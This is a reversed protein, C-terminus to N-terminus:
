NTIIFNPVKKFEKSKVFKYGQFSGQIFYLIPYFNLKIISYIVHIGFSWILKITFALATFFCKSFSNTKLNYCIRWWLIFQIKARKFLKKTSSKYKDSSSGADLHVIGSNYHVLLVYNNIYLKYFFLLDDGYAFEFDDLWKEDQFKIKKYSELKWLSAPGAASQSFCISQSPAKNFSFSGDRKIKFAWNDDKRSTVFNTAFAALKNKFSLDQNKFTDAAICDANHLLLGDFLKEVADNPLYVDDDLFLVYDTDIEDYSLARQAVMGKPTLIYQEIGVTETPIDFGEALYVLIKKPPITQNVLSTLEQQYKDGAKGLTRIAVCYSLNKM